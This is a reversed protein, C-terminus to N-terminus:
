LVVMCGGVGLLFFSGVYLYTSLSLPYVLIKQWLPFIQDFELYFVVASDSDAYLIFGVFNLPVIYHPYFLPWRKFNKM